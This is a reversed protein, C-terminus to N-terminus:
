EDKPRFTHCCTEKKQTAEHHYEAEGYPEAGAEMNFDATSNADIEVLIAEAQCKNGEGWFTCNAVNCKVLPKAMM